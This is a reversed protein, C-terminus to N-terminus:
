KYNQHEEEALYFKKAEKIETQIEKNTNLSNMVETATNKQEEDIYFIISQFQRMNYSTYDHIEFFFKCLEKYSIITSDFKLEVTETHNTKGSCVAEYTPKILKGGCYGVQSHIIGKKKNFSDQVGWFCGASFLAIKQNQIMNKFKLIKSVKM